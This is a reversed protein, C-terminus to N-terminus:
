SGRGRRRPWLQVGPGLAVMFTEGLLSSLIIPVAPRKQPESQQVPHGPSPAWLSLGPLLCLAFLFLVTDVSCWCLSSGTSGQAPVPGAERRPIQVSGRPRLASPVWAPIISDDQPQEYNKFLPGGM